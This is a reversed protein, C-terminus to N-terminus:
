VMIKELDELLTEMYKVALNLEFDEKEEGEVDLMELYSVAVNAYRNGMVRLVNTTTLDVLFRVIRESRGDSKEEKTFMARASSSFIENDLGATGGRLQSLVFSKQLADGWSFQHTSVGPANTTGRHLVVSSLFSSSWVRM